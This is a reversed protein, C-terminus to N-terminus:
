PSRDTGGSEFPETLQLARLVSQVQDFQNGSDVWVAGILAEVTSALTVRPVEGRQSPNKTVSRDLGFRARLAALSDNAGAASLVLTSQGPGVGEIYSRHAVDLRILADGILALSENGNVDGAIDTRSVSAGAALTAEKLLKRDAFRYKIINEIIAAM